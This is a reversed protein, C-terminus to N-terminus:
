KEKPKSYAFLDKGGKLVERVIEIKGPYPIHAGYWTGRQILMGKRSAVARRPNMDYRACYSFHPVQLDVAHVIDGVFYESRNGIRYVTHGPTHGSYDLPILGYPQVEKGYDLLVIRSRYPELCGAMRARAADKKWAEYEKRSIYIKAKSFAAKGDEDILGGVHDPHIHTIFVASITERPIQLERLQRFLGRGFGADILCRTGDKLTMLFVNCSAPYAKRLQLKESSSHFLSGPMMMAQEQIATIERDPYHFVAPNDACIRATLLVAAVSLLQKLNRM